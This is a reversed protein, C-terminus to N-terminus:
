HGNFKNLYIVLKLTELKINTELVKFHKGIPGFSRTSNVM